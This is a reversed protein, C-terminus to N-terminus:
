IEKNSVIQFNQSPSFDLSSEAVRDALREVDVVLSKSLVGLPRLLHLPIAKGSQTHRTGIIVGPQFVIASQEESREAFRQAAACSLRKGKYYAFKDTKLPGIIQAGIVVARKVGAEAAADLARINTTGNIFFQQEWNSKKFTPIPPSGVACIVTDTDALSEPKPVSADGQCWKVKESWSQDHLYSPRTGTRSVCVPAAGREVLSRAIHTGVFGNGGYIIVKTQNM